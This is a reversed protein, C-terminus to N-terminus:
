LMSNIEWPWKETLITIIAIFLYYAKCLKIEETVKVQFDM